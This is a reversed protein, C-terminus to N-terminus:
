LTNNATGRVHNVHGTLVFIEGYRAGRMNDRTKVAPGAPTDDNM